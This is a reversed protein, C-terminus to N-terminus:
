NTAPCSPYAVCGPGPGPDPGCALPGPAPPEAGGLFLYGLIGVADSLDIKGDGGVEAAAMCGPQEGGAFLWMLVFLADSIDVQADANADGRRFPVAVTSPLSDITLRVGPDEPIASERAVVARIEPFPAPLLPEEFELSITGLNVGSLAIAARLVMTQTLAFDGGQRYWGIGDVTPPGGDAGQFSVGDIRWYRDWMDEYVMGLLFTGAMPIPIPPEMIGRTIEISSDKGLVYPVMDVKPAAIMLLHFARQTSPETEDAAIELFPWPAGAAVDGSELPVREGNITLDLVLSRVPTATVPISLVGTGQVVLDGSPSRWDIETLDYVNSGLLPPRETVAFTGELPVPIAKCVPCANVILSGERLDFTVAEGAGASRIAAPVLLVSVLALLPIPLVTRM